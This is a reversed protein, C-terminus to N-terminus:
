QWGRQRPLVSTVEGGGPTERWDRGQMEVIRGDALESMRSWAREGLDARAAKWTKNSTLVVGRGADYRWCVLEQVATTASESLSPDAGVDDLVLLPVTLAWQWTREAWERDRDSHKARWAEVYTSERLYLGQLRHRRIAQALAYAVLRTKGRGVPGCLVVGQNTMPAEVWSALALGAAKNAKTGEPKDNAKQLLNAQGQERQEAGPHLYGFAGRVWAEVDCMGCAKVRTYGGETIWTVM